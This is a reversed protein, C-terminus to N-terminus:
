AAPKLRIVTGIGVREQRSIARIGEGAALRARIAAEKDAPITPRGIAKGSRTGRERAKQLGAVTRERILEREFEAFVGLMGFMARGAATTTDIGQRDLYLGVDRERLLEGLETAHHLSRALRDLSWAAVLDFSRRTIGRCLQDLGPRKDRGKSGSIGDDVFEAVVHWGFREAAAALAMRQMTLDQSGTSVRMYLAVRKATM